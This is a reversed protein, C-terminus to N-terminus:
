RKKKPRFRKLKQNVAALDFAEPDFDDYGDDQLFPHDAREPHQLAEVFEMFGWPGGVDEPPCAQEGEICAPYAQGEEPDLIKEIVIEHEWSDGMDYIYEFRFKRKGAPFIESLKVREDDDADSLDPPGYEDGDIAFCYLHENYWGMVVQIIEHLRALTCDPVLIRRWVTPEVNKLSIKIQFISKEIKAAHAAQVAPDIQPGRLKLWAQDLRAVLKALLNREALSANAGRESIRRALKRCFRILHEVQTTVVQPQASRRKLQDDFRKPLRGLGRLVSREAPTLEIDLRPRRNRFDERLAWLYDDLAADLQNPDEIKLVDPPDLKPERGM